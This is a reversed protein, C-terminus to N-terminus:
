KRYIVTDHNWRKPTMYDAGFMFELYTHYNEFGRLNYGNFNIDKITDFMSKELVVRDNRVCVSQGVLKSHKHKENHVTDYLMAWWEDSSHRWSKLKSIFDRKQSHYLRNDIRRINHMYKKRLTTDEPVDDFPFIDLTVGFKTLNKESNNKIITTPDNIKIFGGYFLEEDTATKYLMHYKDSRYTAAFRDFDERLMCIDADDDWPIFGGHRVAGLMTGDSISYNIGNERCFSDVDKLIDFLIEQKEGISLPRKDGM